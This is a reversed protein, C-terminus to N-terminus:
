RRMSEYLRRALPNRRLARYLSSARLKTLRSVLPDHRLADLQGQVEVLQNRLGAAHDAETVLLRYASQLATRPYYEGGNARAHEERDGEEREWRALAASQELAEKDPRAV